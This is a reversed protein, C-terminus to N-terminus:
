TPISVWRRYHLDPFKSPKPRRFSRGKYKRGIKFTRLFTLLSKNIALSYSLQVNNNVRLIMVHIIKKCSKINQPLRLVYSLCFLLKSSTGADCYEYCGLLLLSEQFITQVSENCGAFVIISYKLIINRCRYIKLVTTLKISFIEM